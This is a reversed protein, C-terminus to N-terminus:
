LSQMYLLDPLRRREYALVHWTKVLRVLFQDGVPIVHSPGPIVEMVKEITELKGYKLTRSISYGDKKVSERCTTHYYCSDTM